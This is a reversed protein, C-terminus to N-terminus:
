GDIDVPFVIKAIWDGFAKDGFNGASVGIQNQGHGILLGGVVSWDDDVGDLADARRGATVAVDQRPQM